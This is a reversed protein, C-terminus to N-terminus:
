AGAGQAAPAQHIAKSRKVRLSSPAGMPGAFANALRQIYKDKLAESLQAAQGNDDNYRVKARVGERLAPFFDAPFPIQDTAALTPPNKLAAVAVTYSGSPIPYFRLTLLHSTANHTEFYWCEPTDSDSVLNTGPRALIREVPVYVLPRGVTSEKGAPAASIYMGRITLADSLQATPVSTLLNLSVTENRFFWPAAQYIDDHVEQVWRLFQAQVDPDAYQEGFEFAMEQAFSDVTM